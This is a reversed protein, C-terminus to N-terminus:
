VCKFCRIVMKYEKYIKYKYSGTVLSQKLETLILHYSINMILRYAVQKLIYLFLPQFHDLSISVHQEYLLRIYALLFKVLKNYQATKVIRICLNKRKSNM